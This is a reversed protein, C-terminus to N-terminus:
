GFGATWNLGSPLLYFSPRSFCPPSPPSSWSFVFAIVSVVDDDFDVDQSQLPSSPHYRTDHITTFAFFAGRVFSLMPLPARSRASWGFGSSTM